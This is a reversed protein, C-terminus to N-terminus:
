VNSYPTWPFGRNSSHGVILQHYRQEFIRMNKSIDAREKIIHQNIMRAKERLLNNNFARILSQCLHEVSNPKVLLGNDGDNIWYRNAPIDTVVPFAGAAMAELLSASLGDTELMSCYIDAKALHRAIEVRSTRGIFRTKESIGLDRSLMELLNKQPGDGVVEYRIDPLDENIRAIARLIVDVKCYDMLSRTTIITHEREKVMRLGGFLDLEIGRPKVLIRGRPVGLEQLSNSINVSWAHVLDARKLAYQALRRKFLSRACQVQVDGGDAALVLPRTGALSAIYGYSTLRYAVVIDPDIARILQRVRPVSFLYSLKGGLCRGAFHMDIGSSTIYNDIEEQGLELHHITIFHVEHQLSASFYKMWSLANVSNANGLFCIVMSM